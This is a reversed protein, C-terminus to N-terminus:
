PHRVMIRQTVISDNMRCTVIMLGPMTTTLTIKKRGGEDTEVFPVSRGLMDHVQVQQAKTPVFFEGANPNPYIVLGSEETVSTTLNNSKGFVPRIMLSGTVQTNQLWNGGTNYYMRSGTDNSKDLGVAIISATGQRWGVYFRGGM